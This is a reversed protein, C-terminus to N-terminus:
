SLKVYFMGKIAGFWVGVVIKYPANGQKGWVM